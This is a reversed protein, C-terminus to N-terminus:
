HVSVNACTMRTLCRRDGESLGIRTLSLINWTFCLCFDLGAIMCFLIAFFAGIADFYDVKLDFEM